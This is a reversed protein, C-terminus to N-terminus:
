KSYAWFRNQKKTLFSYSKSKKEDCEDIMKCVELSKKNEISKLSFEYKENLFDDIEKKTIYNDGDFDMMKFVQKTVMGVAIKGVAFISDKVFATVEEKSYKEDRVGYANGDYKNLVSIITPNTERFHKNFYNELPM